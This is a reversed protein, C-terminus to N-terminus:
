DFTSSRELISPISSVVALSNISLPFSYKIFSFSSIELFSFFSPTSSLKVLSSPIVWPINTTRPSFFILFSLSKASSEESSSIPPISSILPLLIISSLLRKQLEKTM